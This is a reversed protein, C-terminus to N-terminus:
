ICRKSHDLTAILTFVVTVASIEISSLDFV